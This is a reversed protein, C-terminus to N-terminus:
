PTPIDRTDQDRNLLLIAYVTKHHSHLFGVFSQAVSVCNAKKKSCHDKSRGFKSLETDQAETTHDNLTLPNLTRESKEEKSRM